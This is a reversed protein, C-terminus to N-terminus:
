KEEFTLDYFPSLTKGSKFNYKINDPKIDKHIIGREHVRGLVLSIEIAMQLFLKLPVQRNRVTDRLIEGEFDRLV